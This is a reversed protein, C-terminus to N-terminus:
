QKSVGRSKGARARASTSRRGGTSRASGTSSGRGTQRIDALDKLSLGKKKLEDKTIEDMIERSIGIAQTLAEYVAFKEPMGSICTVLLEVGGLEKELSDGLENVFKVTQKKFLQQDEPNLQHFVIRCVEPMNKLQLIESLKEGFTEALWQEDDLNFPRMTLTKDLRALYFSAEKPVIDRFTFDRM